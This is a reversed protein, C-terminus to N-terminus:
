KSIKRCWEQVNDTNKKFFKKYRDKDALYRKFGEINFDEKATKVAKEVKKGFDKADKKHTIEYQEIVKEGVKVVISIPEKLSYVDQEPIPDDKMSKSMVSYIKELLAADNCDILLKQSSEIDYWENKFPKIGYVAEDSLTGKMFPTEAANGPVPVLYDNSILKMVKTEIQHELARNSKNGRDVEYMGNLLGFLIYAYRRENQSLKSSARKLFDSNDQQDMFLMFARLVDHPGINKLAEDPDMNSTLYTKITKLAGAVTTTSDGAAEICKGGIETFVDETIKGRTETLSLIIDAIVRFLNKDIDSSNEDLVKDRANEFDSYSDGYINKVCDRLKDNNDLFNILEADVNTKLCGISWDGTAEIGYYAAAKVRLRDIVSRRVAKKEDESVSVDAKESLSRIVEPTIREDVGEDSWIYYLDEPFWLDLSSKKFSLKQDENDFIIKSLYTIPVEGCIFAGFCAEDAFADAVSKKESLSYIGDASMLTLYAPIKSANEDFVVELAVPYYSSSVGYIGVQESLRKKSAFIFDDSMFSATDSKFDATMVAKSVIDNNILVHYAQNNSCYIYLKEM